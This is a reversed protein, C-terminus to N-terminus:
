PERFAEGGIELLPGLLYDALRRTGLHIEGRVGMGPRLEFPGPALTIRLPYVAGLTPHEVASAGLQRLEGALTGHDTFPYADVKVAVPQGVQVRAVDAQALWAEVELPADVPVIVAVPEGASLVAGPGRIALQHVTGAVPSRLVLWSLRRDAKLRIQELRDLEAEAALLRELLSRRYGAGLAEREAELRQLRAVLAEGRHREAALAESLEVRPREARLWAVRPQLGQDVLRRLAEAEESVLPLTAELRALERQHARLAGLQAAQERDLAALRSAQEAAEDALLRTQTDAGEAARGPALTPDDAARLATRLRAAVARAQKLALDVQTLDADGLTPDLELLPDGAAVQAGESVLVARVVGTEAPQVPHVGAVPVMEGPAVAVVDVRGWWAGSALTLLLALLAWLVARGLSAPPRQEIELLGPLFEALKSEVPVPVPLRPRM